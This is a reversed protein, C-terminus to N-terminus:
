RLTGARRQARNGDAIIRISPTGSWAFEHEGILRWAAGDESYEAGVRTGLDVRKM